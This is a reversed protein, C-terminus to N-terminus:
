PATPDAAKATSYQQWLAPEVYMVLNENPRLTYFSNDHWGTLKAQMAAAQEAAVLVIRATTPTDPISDRYEIQNNGRWYWPLPWGRDKHIVLIPLPEGPGHKELEAVQDLLRPFRKVTHAYVYPNSADACYHHIALMSQSSLHYLMLIFAVRPVHRKWGRQFTRLLIAAGYGALLILAYQANLITWPTKYALVSYGGILLLAYTGLFVLFAQRPERKTHNGMIGHGIGLLALLVISAESWRVGGDRFWTLLTLYYWWPKEHGAGDSREWYYQYTLVSNKVAEWDRFGGSYLAVSVLVAPVLVWLWPRSAATSRLGLSFGSKKQAFGGFLQTAVVWAVLAAVVQLIFTEKTAHQVGLAVGAVVLWGRGGGQSHRWLAALSLATALVLLMEMIFYRSYFVQMPSVALILLSCVAGVRTLADTVLLTVVLLLLGAVVSVMRLEADTWTGPSGWGAAKSWLLTAYHLAPGHFDHPDYEFHGQAQFQLTKVALIAEDAHMPREELSPLRYYAGIGLAVLVLIACAFLSLPAPPKAFM